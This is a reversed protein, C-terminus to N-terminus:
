EKGPGPLLGFLRDFVQRVNETHRTYAREFQEEATAHGDAFGMRLALKRREGRNGPLSHLQRAHMMQLRHEVTRLFYYASQLRECDAPALLRATGLRELATLTSGTQLEPLRHGNELQLCQVTFEVDRIGGVGLKVNAADGARLLESEVRAKMRRIGTRSDGAPRPRHVVPVVAPLLAEQLAAEGAVPRLKLCAQQEWLGANRELYAIFGPLTPVLPGVRGYPRLRLDVRYLYGEGTPETLYRVLSEALRHAPPEPSDASRLLLLDVDSSYNLECGGLKGLASVLIRPKEPHGAKTTEQEALALCEAILADALASLRGVVEPLEVLGLLDAAGVRLLELRQFRRLADAKAERSTFADLDRRLAAVLSGRSRQQQLERETTLLEFYEPNRLLVESLFQSGAFLTVLVSITRPDDHLYHLLTLPNASVSLFRTFNRLAMLPDACVRMVGLLEPALDALALRVQPEAALHQLLKDAQEWEDQGLARWTAEVVRPPLAAELLLDRIAQDDPPPLPPM